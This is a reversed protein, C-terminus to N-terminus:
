KSIGFLIYLLFLINQLLLILIILIEYFVKVLQVNNVWKLQSSYIFLFRVYHNNIYLYNMWENIWSYQSYVKIIQTDKLLLTDTYVGRVKDSSERISLNSFYSGEGQLFSCFNENMHEDDKIISTSNLSVLSFIVVIIFFNFSSILVKTWNWKFSQYIWPSKIFRWWKWFTFKIRKEVIFIINIITVPFIVMNWCNKVKKINDLHM